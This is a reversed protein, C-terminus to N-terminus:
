AKEFVGCWVDMGLVAKRGGELGELSRLTADRLAIVVAQEREDKVNDGIEQLFEQSTVASVEWLGDKLGAKPVVVGESVMKLGADGALKKIAAPSVVTRVNSVTESKRCELSAQTLAALVHPYAAASSASLAWEAIYVRKCLSRLRQFTTKIILPSSFYWLSHTLVGVDYQPETSSEPLFSLPDSAVWTIRSGIATSSIHQQAEHVTFPSGPQTNQDVSRNGHTCASVMIQLLLISPTM